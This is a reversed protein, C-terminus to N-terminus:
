ESPIVNLSQEFETEITKEKIQTPSDTFYDEAAYRSLQAQNRSNMHRGRGRGRGGRGRGFPGM